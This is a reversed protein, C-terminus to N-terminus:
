RHFPLSDKLREVVRLVKRLDSDIRLGGGDNPGITSVEGRLSKIFLSPLVGQDRGSTMARPAHSPAISLVPSDLRSFRSKAQATRQTALAPWRRNCPYNSAETRDM